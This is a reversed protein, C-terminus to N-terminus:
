KKVIKYFSVPQVRRGSISTRNFTKTVVVGSKLGLHLMDRVQTQGMKWMESWQQVNYYGPDVKQEQAKNLCTRLVTFAEAAERDMESRSSRM